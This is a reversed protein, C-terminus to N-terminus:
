GKIKFEEMSFDVLEIKFIPDEESSITKDVTIFQTESHDDKRILFTFAPNVPDANKTDPAQDVLVFNPYFELMEIKVGNDLEYETEMEKIDVEFMGIEQENEKVSFLVTKFFGVREEEHSGENEENTITSNKQEDSHDRDNTCAFLFISTFLIISLGIGYRNM